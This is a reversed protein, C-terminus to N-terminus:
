PRATGIFFHERTSDGAYSRSLYRAPMALTYGEGGEVRYTWEGDEGIYPNGPLSDLYAPVLAPLDAPYAGEDRLHRELALAIRTSRYAALVNCATSVAALQEHHIISYKQYLRPFISSSPQEIRKDLWERFQRPPRQAIELLVTKNEALFKAAGKFQWTFVLSDLGSGFGEANSSSDLSDDISRWLVELAQRGDKPPEGAKDLAQRLLELDSGTLHSERFLRRMWQLITTERTSYRQAELALRALRIVDAFGEAASAVDDEYRALAYARGILLTEVRRVILLSPSYFYLGGAPSEPAQLFPKEIAERVKGAIPEASRLYELLLPDDDPRDVGLMKGLSDPEVYYYTLVDPDYESPVQLFPPKPPFLDETEKLVFYANDESTRRAIYEERDEPMIVVPASVLFRGGIAAAAFFLFGGALLIKKRRSM